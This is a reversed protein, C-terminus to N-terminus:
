VWPCIWGSVAELADPIWNILLTCREGDRVREAGEREVHHMM